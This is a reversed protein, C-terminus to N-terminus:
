GINEIIRLILKLEAVVVKGLLFKAKHVFRILNMSVIEEMHEMHQRYVVM